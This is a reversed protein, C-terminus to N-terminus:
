VVSKRDLGAVKNKTKLKYVVVITLVFSKTQLQVFYVALSLNHVGAQVTELLASFFQNCLLVSSSIECLSSCFILLKKGLCLRLGVVKSGMIYSCGRDELRVGPHLGLLNDTTVNKGLYTYKTLQLLRSGRIYWYTEVTKILRLVLVQVHLTGPKPLIITM